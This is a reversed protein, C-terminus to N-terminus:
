DCIDSGELWMNMLDYITLITIDSNMFGPTNGHKIIGYDGKFKSVWEKGLNSCQDFTLNPICIMKTMGTNLSWCYIDFGEYYSNM